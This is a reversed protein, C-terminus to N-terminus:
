IRKKAIIFTRDDDSRKRIENGDLLLYFEELINSDDYKDFIDFVYDFFRQYAERKQMDLIQRQLGDTFLTLGELYNNSITVRLNNEYNKDTIFNTMNVYMGEIPWFVVNFNKNEKIVIGGDGIQFFIAKKEGIVAGVITCAYDRLSYGEWQSELLIFDRIRSVIHYLIGEDIKELYYTDLIAQKIINLGSQCVIEAGKKGFLASGAGDSVICILFSKENILIEEAIFDDQCPVNFYKHSSGTVSLGYLRWTM